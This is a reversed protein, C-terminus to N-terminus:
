RGESNLSSSIAFFEEAEAYSAPTGIDIFRGESRFGLLKKGVLSPFFERELSYSRGAPISSVLSKKMLYIGANIWGPGVSTGKEDFATIHEDQDIVVRGYRATDPVKILVLAADGNKRFFWDIYSVLDVDVYSDGNMVLITDSWLYSLALRLAGGTGLPQQEQSYLLRLHEYAEGFRQRIQEAMYGTCLVVEHCKAQCISSYLKGPGASKRLAVVQDLLYALFPRGSVEALVKPRDSVVSKLREGKGGALIVAQIESISQM